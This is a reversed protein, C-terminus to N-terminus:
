LMWRRNRQDSRCPMTFAYSKAELRPLDFKSRGWLKEILIDVGATKLPLAERVPQQRHCNEPDQQGFRVGKLTGIAGVERCRLGNARSRCQIAGIKGAIRM